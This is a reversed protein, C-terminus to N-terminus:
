QVIGECGGAPSVLPAAWFTTGSRTGVLHQTAPNFTLAYDVATPKSDFNGKFSGQLTVQGNANRGTFTEVLDCPGACVSVGGSLAGGQDNLSLIQGATCAAVPGPSPENRSGFAWRGTLNSASVPSSPVPGPSGTATGGGTGTTTGGTTGAPPEACAALLGIALAITLTRM